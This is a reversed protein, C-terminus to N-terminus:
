EKINIAFDVSDERNQYNVKATFLYTGPVIDSFPKPRITFYIFRKEGSAIAKITQIKPYIIFFDDTHPRVEIKVDKELNESTNKIYLKLITQSDKKLSFDPNLDVIGIEKEKYTIALYVFSLVIALILLIGAIKKLDEPKPFSLSPLKFFNRKKEEILDDYISM